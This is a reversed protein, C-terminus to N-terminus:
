KTKTVCEGESKDLSCHGEGTRCARSNKCEAVTTAKCRGDSLTCEGYGICQPSTRCEEPTSADCEDGVLSCEGYQTCDTSATCDTVDTARCRTGRFTCEGKKECDPSSACPDVLASEKHETDAPTVAIDPGKSPSETAFLKDWNAFVGGVALLLAGVMTVVGTLSKLFDELRKLVGLPSLSAGGPVQSESVPEMSQKEAGSM